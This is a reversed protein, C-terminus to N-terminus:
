MYFKSETLPSYYIGSKCPGLCRHAQAGLTGQEPGGESFFSYYHPFPAPLTQGFGVKEHGQVSFVFYPYFVENLISWALFFPLYFPFDLNTAM